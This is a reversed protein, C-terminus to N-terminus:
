NEYIYFFDEELLILKGNSYIMDKPICDNELSNCDVLDGDKNLKILFRMNSVFKMQNLQYATTYINFHKDVILAWPQIFGYKTFDIKKLLRFTIKNLFFLISEGFDNQFKNTPEDIKISHVNLILIENKIIKIFKPKFEDPKKWDIQKVSRKTYDIVKFSSEDFCKILYIDNTVEDVAMDNYDKLQFNNLSLFNFDYDFIHLAGDKNDIILIEKNANTSIQNPIEINLDNSNYETLYSVNNTYMTIYYSKKIENYTILVIRNENSNGCITARIICSGVNPKKKIFDKMNEINITSIRSKNKTLRQPKIEENKQIMEKLIIEINKCEENFDFEDDFIDQKFEYNNLTRMLKVYQLIEQMEFNDDNIETVIPSFILLIPKEIEMAFEFEDIESQTRLYDITIIAILIDSKNLSDDINAERNQKKTLFKLNHDFSNMFKQIFNDDELNRNYSLYCNVIGKETM